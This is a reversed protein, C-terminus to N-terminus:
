RCMYLPVCSQIWSENFCCKSIQAIDNPVIGDPHVLLSWHMEELKRSSCNCHLRVVRCEPFRFDAATLSRVNYKCLFAAILGVWPFWGASPKCRKYEVTLFRSLIHETWSLFDICEPGVLGALTINYTHKSKRLPYNDHREEEYTMASTCHVLADAGPPVARSASVIVSDCPTKLNM